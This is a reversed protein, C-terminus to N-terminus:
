KIEEFVLVQFRKGFGTKLTEIGVLILETDSSIFSGEGYYAGQREKVAFKMWLKNKQTSNHYIVLNDIITEVAWSPPAMFLYKLYNNPNAGRIKIHELLTYVNGGYGKCGKDKAHQDMERQARREEEQQKKGEMEEKKQQELQIQRGVNLFEREFTEIQSSMEPCGKQISAKLSSYGETKSDMAYSALINFYVPVDTEVTFDKCKLPGYLNIFEESIKTNPWPNGLYTKPNGFIKKAIEQIKDKNEKPSLERESKIDNYASAVLQNYDDIFALIQQSTKKAETTPCKGARRKFADIAGFLKEKQREASKSDYMEVQYYLNIKDMIIVAENFWYVRCKASFKIGLDNKFINEVIDENRFREKPHMLDIIPNRPPNSYSCSENKKLIQKKTYNFYEEKTQSQSVEESSTKKGLNKLNLQADANCILMTLVLFFLPLCLIRPTIKM